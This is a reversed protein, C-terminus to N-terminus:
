SQCLFTPLVSCFYGVFDGGVVLWRVYKNPILYFYRVLLIYYLTIVPFIYRGQLALDKLDLRLYTMYNQVLALVLTYSALIVISVTELLHTKKWFRIICFMVLAGIAVFISYGYSPIYIAQHGMIGYTRRAMWYPWQTLYELPSEKTLVIKKIGEISFVKLGTDLGSDRKYVGNKMCQDVTMVQDCTPLVSRYKLFNGGYHAAMLLLSIIAVATLIGMRWGKLQKRWQLKKRNNFLFYVVIVVEIALLPLISFKSLTGLSAAFIWLLFFSLKYSSKIFKVVAYVSIVAFLNALNDYNVASSLFAFMLTSSLLFVPLIQQLRREFFEKSLKYLFVLTLTSYFLSVLRLLLIEDIHVFNANLVRGNIWFYLYPVTTIDGFQYTEQTNAPIGSTQSYAKSVYYHYPEDPAVALRINAACYVGFLLFAMFILGLLIDYKSLGKFMNQINM